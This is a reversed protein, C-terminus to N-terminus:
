NPPGLTVWSQVMPIEPLEQGGSSGAPHVNVAPRHFPRQLPQALWMAIDQIRSLQVDVHKHLLHACGPTWVMVAKGATSETRIAKAQKAEHPSLVAEAM